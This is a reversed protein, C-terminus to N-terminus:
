MQELRRTEEQNDEKATHQNSDNDADDRRKTELISEHATNGLDLTAENDKDGIGTIEKGVAHM